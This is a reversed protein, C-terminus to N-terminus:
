ATAACWTGGARDPNVDGPQHLDFAFQNRNTVQASSAPMGIVDHEFVSFSRGGGTAMQM